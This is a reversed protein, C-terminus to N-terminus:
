SRRRAPVPTAPRVPRAAGPATPRTRGPSTRRPRARRRRTDAAQEGRRLSSLGRSGARRAVSVAAESRGQGEGVVRRGADVAGAAGVRRRAAPAPEPVPEVVSRLLPRAPLHRGAAHHAPRDVRRLGRRRSDSGTCFLRHGPGHPGGAFATRLPGRGTFLTLQLAFRGTAYRTDQATLAFATLRADQDPALPVLRERVWIIGPYQALRYDLPTIRTWTTDNFGAELVGLQGDPMTVVIGGHGPRGTLALRYLATWFPTTNSMLLIDGAKPQYTHAPERPALQVDYSPQYLYGSPADTPIYVPPFKKPGVPDAGPALVLALAVVPFM